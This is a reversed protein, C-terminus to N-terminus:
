NVGMERVILEALGDAYIDRHIDQEKLPEDHTYFAVKYTDPGVEYTVLISKFSSPNKPLKLYLSEKSFISAQIGTYALFPFGHVKSAKLQSFIEEAYYTDQNPNTELTNM